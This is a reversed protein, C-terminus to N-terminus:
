GAQSGPTQSFFVPPVVLLSHTLHFSHHSFSLCPHPIKNVLSVNHTPAASAVGNNRLVHSGCSLRQMGDYTNERNVNHLGAEKLSGDRTDQILTRASEPAKYEAVAFWLDM